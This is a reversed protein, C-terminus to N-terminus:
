KNTRQGNNTRMAQESYIGLFTKAKEKVKGIVREPEVWEGNRQFIGKRRMECPCCPQNDQAGICCCALASMNNSQVKDM